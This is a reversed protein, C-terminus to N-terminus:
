TGLSATGSASTASAITPWTRPRRARVEVLEGLPVPLADRGPARRGVERDRCVTSCSSAAPERRRDVLVRHEAHLVRGVPTSAARQRSRAAALDHLLLHPGRSSASGRRAARRPRRRVGPGVLPAPQGPQGVAVLGVGRRQAVERGGVLGGCSIWSIPRACTALSASSYRARPGSTTPVSSRWASRRPSARGVRLQVELLPSSSTSASWPRSPWPGRGRHPVPELDAAAPASQSTRPWWWRRSPRSSGAPRLVARRPPVNKMFM